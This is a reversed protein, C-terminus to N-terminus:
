REPLRDFRRRSAALTEDDVPRYNLSIPDYDLPSGGEKLALIIRRGLGEFHDKYFQRPGLVYWDNIGQLLKNM